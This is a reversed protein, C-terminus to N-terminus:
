SEHRFWEAWKQDNQEVKKWDYTVSIKGNNSDPKDIKVGM